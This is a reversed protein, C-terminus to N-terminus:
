VISPSAIEPTLPSNFARTQLNTLWSNTSLASTFSSLTHPPIYLIGWFSTATPFLLSLVLQVPEQVPQVPKWWPTRPESLSEAPSKVPGLNPQAPSLDPQVPKLFVRCMVKESLISQCVPMDSFSLLLLASVPQVLKLDPQVSKQFQHVFKSFVSTFRPSVKTPLSPPKELLM